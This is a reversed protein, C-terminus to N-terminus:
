LVKKFTNYYSSTNGLAKKSIAMSLGKEPDFIDNDSCKVVTKTGDNWFVITAPSNFIVKDIGFISSMREYERIKKIAEEKRNVAERKIKEADTTTKDVKLFILHDYNRATMFYLTKKHYEDICTINIDTDIYIDGNSEAKYFTVSDVFRHIQELTERAAKVAVKGCLVILEAHAFRIVM